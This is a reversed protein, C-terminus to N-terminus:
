EITVADINDQAETSKTTISSRISPITAVAVVAIVALIIVFQLIDGRQNKLIKLVRKKM